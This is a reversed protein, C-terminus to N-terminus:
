MEELRTVRGGTASVGYLAGTNRWEFTQNPMLLIGEKPNGAVEVTNDGVFLEVGTRNQLVAVGRDLKAPAIIARTNAALTTVAATEVFDGDFNLAKLQGTNVALQSGSRFESDIFVVLTLLGNQKPWFLYAKPVVQNTTWSDKLGLGVYDQNLQDTVPKFFFEASKQDAREVYLSKFEFNILLPNLEDREKSLDLVIRKISQNRDARQIAISAQDVEAVRALLARQSSENNEM